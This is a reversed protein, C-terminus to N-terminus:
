LTSLRQKKRQHPANTIVLGILQDKIELRVGVAERTPM